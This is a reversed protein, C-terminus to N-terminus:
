TVPQAITDQYLAQAQSSISVTDCKKNNIVEKKTTVVPQPVVTMYRHYLHKSAQTAQEVPRIPM